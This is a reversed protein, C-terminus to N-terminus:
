CLNLGEVHPYQIENRNIQNKDKNLKMVKISEDYLDFKDGHNM